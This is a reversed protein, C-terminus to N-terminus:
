GHRERRLGWAGILIAVISLAAMVLATDHLAAVQIEPPATVADGVM